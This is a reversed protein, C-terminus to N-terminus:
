FILSPYYGTGSSAAKQVLDEMCKATTCHKIDVDTKKRKTTARKRCASCRQGYTGRLGKKLRSDDLYYDQIPKLQGCDKCSKEKPLNPLAALSYVRSPLSVHHCHTQFIACYVASAQTKKLSRPYRTTGSHFNSLGM